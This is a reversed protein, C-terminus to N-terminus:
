FPACIKESLDDHLRDSIPKGSRNQNRQARNGGRLLGRIRHAQAAGDLLEVAVDHRDFQAIACRARERQGVIRQDDAHDLRRHGVDLFTHEEAARRYRLRVTRLLRKLNVNERLLHAALALPV